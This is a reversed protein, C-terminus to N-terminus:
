LVDRPDGWESRWPIEVERDNPRGPPHLYQRGDGDVFPEDLRLVQGHVPVSDDDTRSDFTAVATKLYGPDSANARELDQHHARNYGWSTETRVIREARSQRHKDRSDMGSYDQALLSDRGALERAVESWTRGELMRLAITNQMSQIRQRGYVAISARHHDLLVGDDVALVPVWSTARVTGTFRESMLAIQEILHANALEYAEVASDRLGREFGAQISSIGAEVRALAVRYHQATFRDIPLADLRDRLELRAQRLIRHVRRRAGLDLRDIDARQRRLMAIVDRRASDRDGAM